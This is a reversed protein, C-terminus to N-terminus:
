QIANLIHLVYVVDDLNSNFSHGKGQSNTALHQVHCVEM